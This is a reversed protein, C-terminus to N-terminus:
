TRLYNELYESSLSRAFDTRGIQLSVIAKGAFHALILAVTTMGFVTDAMFILEELGEDAVIKYPSPFSANNLFTELAQINQRPHPKIITFTDETVYNRFYHDLITYENYGLKPISDELGHDTTIPELLFLHINKDTINYKNRLIEKQGVPFSNIILAANEIKPHGYIEVKFLSMDLNPSIEKLEGILANKSSEDMVCIVDPFCFRKAASDYFHKSYNVWHDFLFVAHIKLKRLETLLGTTKSFTTQSGLVVTIDKKLRITELFDELGIYKENLKALQGACWGEAVWHINKGPLNDTLISMVNYAGPDVCYFYLNIKGEVLKAFKQVSSISDMM